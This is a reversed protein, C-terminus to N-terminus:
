QVVQVPYHNNQQNEENKKMKTLTSLVVIFAVLGIIYPFLLVAWATRVYCYKCLMYLVSSWIIITLIHGISLIRMHQGENIENDYFIAGILSLSVSIIALAIYIQVPTCWGNCMKSKKAM